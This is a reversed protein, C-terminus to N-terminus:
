GEDGEDAGAAKIDCHQCVQMRALFRLNSAEFLVREEGASSHERCVLERHLGLCVNFINKARVEVASEDIVSVLEIRRLPIPYSPFSLPLPRPPPNVSQRHSRVARLVVYALLVQQGTIM